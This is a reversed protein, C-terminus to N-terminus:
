FILRIVATWFAAGGLLCVTWALPAIIPHPRLDDSVASRERHFGNVDLSVRESGWPGQRYTM